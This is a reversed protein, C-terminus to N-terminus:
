TPVACLHFCKSATHNFHHIFSHILFPSLSSPCNLLSKITLLFNGIWLLCHLALSTQDPQFIIVITHPIWFRGLPLLRIMADRCMGGVVLLIQSRKVEVGVVYSVYLQTKGLTSPSFFIYIRVTMLM